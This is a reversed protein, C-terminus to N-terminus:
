MSRNHKYISRASRVLKEMKEIWLGLEQLTTSIEDETSIIGYFGRIHLCSDFRYYEKLLDRRKLSRLIRTFTRISFDLNKAKDIYVGAAVLLAERMLEVACWGKEAADYYYGKELLKLAKQYTNRAELILEEQPEM